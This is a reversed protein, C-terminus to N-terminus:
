PAMSKERKSFIVRLSEIKSLISSHSKIHNVMDCYQTNEKMHQLVFVDVTNKDKFSSDQLLEQMVAPHNLAVIEFATLKKPFNENHFHHPYKKNWDIDVQPLVEKLKETSIFELISFSKDNQMFHHESNMENNLSKKNQVSLFQNIQFVISTQDFIMNDGIHYINIKDYNM